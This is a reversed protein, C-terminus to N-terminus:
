MLLSPARVPSPPQSSVALLPNRVSVMDGEDVDDAKGKRTLANFFMQPSPFLWTSSTGTKPIASAARQTPLPGVQGPAPLQNPELPMHNTPDLAPPAAGWNVGFLGPLRPSRATAEAEASGLKQNYVNYVSPAPRDAAKSAPLQRPPPGLRPQPQPPSAAPVGGGRRGGEPELPGAPPHAPVVAGTAGLNQLYQARVSEPVPCASAPDSPSPAPPPLPLSSPQNGM